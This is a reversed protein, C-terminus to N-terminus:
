HRSLLGLLVDRQVLNCIRTSVPSAYTKKPRSPKLIEVYRPPSNTIHVKLSELRNQLKPALWPKGALLSCFRTPFCAKGNLPMHDIGSLLNDATIFYISPGGLWDLVTLPTDARPNAGELCQVNLWDNGSKTRICLRGQGDNYVLKTQLVGSAATSFYTGIVVQAAGISSDTIPLVSSQPLITETPMIAEAITGDAKLKFYVVLGILLGIVCVTVPLLIYFWRRRKQETPKLSLWQRRSPPLPPQKLSESSTASAPAPSTTIIDEQVADTATPGTRGINNTTQTNSERQTEEGFTDQRPASLPFIAQRNPSTPSMVNSAFSPRRSEAQTYDYNTIRPGNNMRTNPQSTSSQRRPHTERNIPPPNTSQLDSVLNDWGQPNNAQSASGLYSISGQRSSSPISLPRPTNGPQPVSDPIPGM